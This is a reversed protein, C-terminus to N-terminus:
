PPLQTYGARHKQFDAYLIALAAYAVSAGILVIAAAKFQRIARTSQPRKRRPVHIFRNPSGKSNKIRFSSANKLLARSAQSATMQAGSLVSATAGAAYAASVSTGSYASGGAVADAGAFIDTCRGWNSFSARKAGSQMAAVTIASEAHAPSVTCAEINRNGASVVIAINQLKLSAMAQAILDPVGNERLQHETLTGSSLPALVVGPVSPPSTAAHIVAVRHLGYLLRVLSGHGDPGLVPIGVISANRALTGAVLAMATGHGHADGLLGNGGDFSAANADVSCSAFTPILEACNLGTDLSYLVVGTGDRLFDLPEHDPVPDNKQDAIDLGYPTSADFTVEADQLENGGAAARHDDDVFMIGPKLHAEPMTAACLVDEVCEAESLERVVPVVVAAAALRVLLWVM